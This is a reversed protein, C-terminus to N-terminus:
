TTPSSATPSCPANWRATSAAVRTPFWRWATGPAKRFGAVVRGCQDHPSASTVPGAPVRNGPRTAVSWARKGAKGWYKANQRLPQRRAHLLYTRFTGYNGGAKHVKVKRTSFEGDKSPLGQGDPPQPLAEPTGHIVVRSMVTARHAYVGLRDQGDGPRVAPRFRAAM